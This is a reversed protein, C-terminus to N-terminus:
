ETTKTGTDCVADEMALRAWEERTGGLAAFVRWLARWSTLHARKCSRCWLHEGLGSFRSLTRHAHQPCTLRQEAELAAYPRPQETM